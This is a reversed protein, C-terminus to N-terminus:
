ALIGRFVIRICPFPIRGAHSLICHFHSEVGNRDERRLHSSGAISGSGLFQKAGWVLSEGIDRLGERLNASGVYFLIRKLWQATDFIATLPHLCPSTIPAACSITRSPGRGFACKTECCQHVQCCAAQISASPRHCWSGSRRPLRHYTCVRDCQRQSM